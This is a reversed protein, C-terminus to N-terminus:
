EQQFQVPLECCNVRVRASSAVCGVDAPVTPHWGTICDGRGLIELLNNRAIATLLISADPVVRESLNPFAAPVFQKGQAVSWDDDSRRTKRKFVGQHSSVTLAQRHALIVVQRYARHNGVATKCSDVASLVVSARNGM